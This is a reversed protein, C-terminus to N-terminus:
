SSPGEPGGTIWGQSAARLGLQFRTTAGLRQMLDRLRRQFTRHSIGLQRAMVQDTLGTTLVALMRADDSEPDAGSGGAREALHDSLPLAGKWLVEFFEGLAALLGSPHVVVSSAVEYPAARLPMLGLQDDAIMMKTPTGAMVRAEEGLEACAEIDQDLSHYTALGEMDYIVRYAVGRRMTQAQLPMMGTKPDRRDPGGNVYPPRDVGRIERRASRQLQDVQQIVAARGTVVEVLDMPDRADGKARFRAALQQVHRRARQLEEERATLMKDFAIDPAVPLYRDPEGRSGSVREVLNLEELSVLAARVRTAALASASRLEPVTLAGDVLAEYTQQQVPDLDLPELM